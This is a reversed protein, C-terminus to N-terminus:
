ERVWSSLHEELKEEKLDSLLGLITAANQFDPIRHPKAPLKELTAEYFKPFNIFVGFRNEGESLAEFVSTSHSPAFTLWKILSVEMQEM